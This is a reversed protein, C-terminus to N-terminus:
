TYSSLCRWYVVMIDVMKKDQNSAVFTGLTQISDNQVVYIKLFPIRGVNSCFSISRGITINSTFCTWIWIIYLSSDLSVKRFGCQVRIDLFILFDTEYIVKLSGHLLHNDNYYSISYTIFRDNKSFIM